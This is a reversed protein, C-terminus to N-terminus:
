CWDRFVDKDPKIAPALEPSDPYETFNSTDGKGKVTPQYFPTM